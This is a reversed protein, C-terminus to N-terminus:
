YTSKNKMGLKIIFFINIRNTINYKNKTRINIIKFSLNDTYNTQQKRIKSTKAKLVYKINNVMTTYILVDESFANIINLLVDITFYNRNM